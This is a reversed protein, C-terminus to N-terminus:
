DNADDGLNTQPLVGQSLWQLRYNFDHLLTEPSWDNAIYDTLANLVLAMIFYLFSVAEAKNPMLIHSTTLMEQWRKLEPDSLDKPRQYAALNSGQVFLLLRRWNSSQHDLSTVTKLYNTLGLFLDDDAQQIHQLIHRHIEDASTKLIYNYADQLDTFYKYFAGRSMGMKTVIESVRVQSLPREYFTNILIENLQQQRKEPLRIFTQSPM